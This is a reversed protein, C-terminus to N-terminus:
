TSRCTSELSSTVSVNARRAFAQRGGDDRPSVKGRQSGLCEPTAVVRTVPLSLAKRGLLQMDPITYVAMLYGGGEVLLANPEGGGSVSM